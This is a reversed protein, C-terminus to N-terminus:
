RPSRKERGIAVVIADLTGLFRGRDKKDMPTPGKTELGMERLQKSIERGAVLGGISDDTFERGKPDVARAGAKLCRSALPIDATVVVDGGGAHAAIWDDAVDDGQGVVILQISADPPMRQPSNAVVRVELGCRRAVRYVEEKVPCADADVYITTM